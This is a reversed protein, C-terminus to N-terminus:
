PAENQQTVMQPNLTGSQLAMRKRREEIGKLIDDAIEMVEVPARVSEGARRGLAVILPWLAQAKDPDALLEAALVDPPGDAVVITVVLEYLGALLSRNDSDLAVYLRRFAERWKDTMGAKYYTLVREREAHLGWFLRDFGVDEGFQEALDNHSALADDIRGLSRQAWGRVVLLRAGNAGITLEGGDEIYEM